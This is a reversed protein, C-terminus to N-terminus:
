LQAANTATRSKTEQKTQTEELLMAGITTAVQRRNDTYYKATTGIDAHRLQNSAVHIDSAATIISGFEKRLAHVPHILPIGKGLLWQVFEKRVTEVRYVNRKAQPVPLRTLGHGSLDLTEGRERRCTEIQELALGYANREEPTMAPAPM